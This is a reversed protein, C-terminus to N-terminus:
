FIQEVMNMEGDPDPQIEEINALTKKLVQAKEKLPTSKVKKIGFSSEMMSIGIRPM